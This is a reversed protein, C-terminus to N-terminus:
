PRLTLTGEAQARIQEDTWLLPHYVGKLWDDVQDGWHASGPQGSEGPSFVLQGKTWDGTDNIMRM